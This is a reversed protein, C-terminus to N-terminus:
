MPVSSDWALMYTLQRQNSRVREAFNDRGNIDRQYNDQEDEFSKNEFNTNM